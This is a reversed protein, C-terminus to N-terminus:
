FFLEVACWLCVASPEHMKVLGGFLVHRFSSNSSRARARVRELGSPPLFSSIRSLIELWNSSCGSSFVFRCNSPRKLGQGWFHVQRASGGWAAGPGDVVWSGLGDMGGGANLKGTEPGELAKERAKPSLGAVADWKCLEVMVMSNCHMENDGMKISCLLTCLVNLLVDLGASHLQM